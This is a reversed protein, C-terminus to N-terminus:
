RGGVFGGQFLRLYRVAPKFLQMASVRGYITLDVVPKLGDEGCTHIEVRNCKSYIRVFLILIEFLM